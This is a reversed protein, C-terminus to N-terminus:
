VTSPAEELAASLARSLEERCYPKRLITHCLSADAGITGKLDPFGSTLLVKLHGRRERATRALEIGNMGPMVVDTMLLDFSENGAIVDLAEAASNVAITRYGLSQIQRDVTKLVTMSDDVVLITQRADGQLAPKVPVRAPV